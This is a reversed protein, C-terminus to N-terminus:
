RVQPSTSRIILGFGLNGQDNSRLLGPVVLPEFWRLRVAVQEGSSVAATRSMGSTLFMCRCSDAWSLGAPSAV